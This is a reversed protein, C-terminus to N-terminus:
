VAVDGRPTLILGLGWRHFTYLAELAVLFRFAHKLGEFRLIM